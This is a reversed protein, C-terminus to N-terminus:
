GFAAIIGGFAALGTFVTPILWIILRNIEQHFQGSLQGSLAELQLDLYEKTVLADWGGPPRAEILYAAEEM